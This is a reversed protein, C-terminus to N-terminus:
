ARDQNRKEHCQHVCMIPRDPYEDYHLIGPCEWCKGASCQASVTTLIEPEQGPAFHKWEAMGSMM